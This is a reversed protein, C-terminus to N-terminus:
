IKGENLARQFRAITTKVNNSKYRAHLASLTQQGFIGDNLGVGLRLQLTAITNSGSVSHREVFEWGSGQSDGLLGELRIPQDSIGGHVKQGFLFQLRKTTREGWVGDDKLDGPKPKPKPAPRPDKGELKLRTAKGVRGTPTLKNRLQFKVVALATNLGFDGDVRLSVYDRKNLLTQVKKVEDGSAGLGLAGDANRRVRPADKMRDTEPKYEKHWPENKQFQAHGPTAWGPTHWGYKPGNDAFWKQAASSWSNMGNAFDVAMGWGHNSTGPPAALNGVEKRRQIQWALSRYTDNPSVAMLFEGNDLAFQLSMRDASEAADHRLRGGIYTPSLDRDPLQGNEAM